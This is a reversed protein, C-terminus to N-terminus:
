SDFDENLNFKMRQENFSFEIECSRLAIANDKFDLESGYITDGLIAAKIQSL